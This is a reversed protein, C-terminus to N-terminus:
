QHEGVITYHHARAPVDDVDWESEDLGDFGAVDEMEEDEALVGM